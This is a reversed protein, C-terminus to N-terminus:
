AERTAKRQLYKMLAADFAAGVTRKEWINVKPKPTEKPKEEKKVEKVNEVSKSDKIEVIKKQKPEKEETESDSSSSSSDGSSSSSSSSNSSRRVVPVTEPKENGGETPKPEDEAENESSSEKRTRYKREPKSAEIKEKVQDEKSEDEDDKKTYQDRFMKRYFGSLDKQHTVDTLAEVADEMREKEEQKKFEELKARYSSTVFEEKDKFEEGEEEREKQVQREIRRENEMKRREATKLLNEIYKPKKAVDKKKSATDAKQQEMDDYVEDYQFVTPDEDLARKLQQQTARKQTSKESARLIAQGVKKSEPESEDSDEEFCSLRPKLAGGTEEPESKKKPVTLGYKKQFAM